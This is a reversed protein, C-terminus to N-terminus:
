KERGYERRTGNNGNLCFTLTTEGQFFGMSM